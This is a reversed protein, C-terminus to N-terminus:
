PARTALFVVALERGYHWGFRHTRRLSIFTAFALLSVAIWDSTSVACVVTLIILSASLGRMMGYIGNFKDIRNSHGSAAVRAYVERMAARAETRSVTEGIVGDERLIGVFRAHQESTLSEGDLVRKSPLGGFPWWLLTEVTNGVGQVLQGLAYSIVVFLGLEGFTFGDPGLYAQLEPLLWMAGFALVSGPVIIGAYEYFEFSVNM